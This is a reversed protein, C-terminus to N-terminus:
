PAWLLTAIEGPGLQRVFTEGDRELPTPAEGHLDVAFFCGAPSGTPTVRVETDGTGPHFVRLLSGEGGVRPRLSSVLAGSVELAPAQELRRSEFTNRVWPAHSFGAELEWGSPGEGAPLLALAYRFRHTGRDQGGPTHLPPGAHNPRTVLDGRSLWDTGRVLTLGLEVGHGRRWAGYEYLDEALVLLRSEEGELGFYGQCPFYPLPVEARGAAEPLEVPRRVEAFPQGALHEDVAWPTPFCVSLHHDEAQNDLQTEFLVLPSSAELRVTTRVPCTVTEESRSLRDGALRRPLTLSGSIWVERAVEGLSRTEVAELTFPHDLEPLVPDHNYEDGRDGLDRFRHLGRLRRGGVELTLTGDAADVVLRTSGLTVAEGPELTKWPSPIEAPTSPDTALGQVGVRDSAPPLFLVEARHCERMEVRFRGTEPLSRVWSWVDTLDPTLLNARTLHFRLVYVGDEEVNELRRVTFPGVRGRYYNDLTRELFSREEEEEVLVRGPLLSHVVSPCGRVGPVPLEPDVEVPLLCGVSAGPRPRVMIADYEGEPEVPALADLARLALADALDQAKRSRVIGEEHVRDVSCGCITDHALNQLHLKWAREHLRVEGEGQERGTWRALARLPDARDLLAREALGHARKVPYRSSLTGPLLPAISADRLEGEVVPLSEPDYSGATERFFAPWTALRYGAGEGGQNVERLWPALEPRMAFHDTGQSIVDAGPGRYAGQDRLTIELREALEESSKGLHTLEGYGRSLFQTVVESGDPARWRFLSGRGPDVGRWLVAVELGAHRLIQPMQAVHGFMDPLYGVPAAGGFERCVRTGLAINQCAAEGSSLWEDPLVYLPGITLRGSTVLAELRPGQEPRIELYDELAVAQGDFTFVWEPDAELTELIPDVTAVLKARFEEFSLYWERDWHTHPIIYAPLGPAPRPEAEMVCVGTESPAPSLPRGSGSGEM